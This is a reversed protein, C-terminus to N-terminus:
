AKSKYKKIRANIEDEPLRVLPDNKFHEMASLLHKISATDTEELQDCVWLTGHVRVSVEAAAARMRKDGSLLIYGESKALALAFSDQESLAPYNAAYEYALAMSHVDFARSELGLKVLEPVNYNGIRLLENCLMTEPIVFSHELRLTAEILNTKCLDIIVSSDIVIPPM